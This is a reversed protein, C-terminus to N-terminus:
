SSKIHFSDIGISLVNKFMKAVWKCNKCFNWKQKKKERFLIKNELDNVIWGWDQFHVTVRIHHYLTVVAHSRVLIQQQFYFIHDDIVDVIHLRYLRLHVMMLNLYHAFLLNLLYYDLFHILIVLLEFILMVFHNVHYSSVDELQNMSVLANHMM